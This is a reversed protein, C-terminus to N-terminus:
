QGLLAVIEGERLSFDVDSLVPRERGDASRFAKGVERLEIIATM